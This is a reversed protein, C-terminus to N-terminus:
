RGLVALVAVVILVLQFLMATLMGIPRGPKFSTDSDMGFAHAIRGIMFVACAPALWQGGKGALEVLVVLVVTLPTQELFNAQARMRRLLADHGGDGVSVKHVHRLKGIRMGLWFNVLVAAAAFCLSTTLLMIKEGKNIQKLYGNLM